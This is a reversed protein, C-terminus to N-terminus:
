GQIGNPDLQDRLDERGGGGDKCQIAINVMLAQVVGVFSYIIFLLYFQLYPQTLISGFAQVHMLVSLVILPCAQHLDMTVVKLEKLYFNVDHGLCCEVFNPVISLTLKGVCM